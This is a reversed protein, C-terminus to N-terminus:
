FRESSIRYRTFRQLIKAFSAIKEWCLLWWSTFDRRQPRFFWRKGIGKSMFHFLPSLGREKLDNLLDENFEKELYKLVYRIRAPNLYSVSIFGLPKGHKSWAKEIAQYVKPNEWDLGFLMAHYHPRYNQSGYEATMYYKPTFGLNKRLRDKFLNWDDRSVCGDSPLTDDNYTLTLFTSKNKQYQMEFACRDSWMTLIDRRCAACRGCPVPIAVAHNFQTTGRNFYRLMPKNCAM